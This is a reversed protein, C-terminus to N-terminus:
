QSNTQDTWRTGDWWRNLGPISPDPYWGPPPPGTMVPAGAMAMAPTWRARRRRVIGVILLVVGLVGVLFGIGMLVFWIAANKAVDGLSKSLLVREGPPGGVHVDYSGSTKITFEVQGLYSNNGTSLTETVNAPTPRVPIQQGTSSTVTVDAPSLTALGSDEDVYVEWTGSSLHATIDAPTIEHRGVIDHVIKVIGEALGGIGMVTGIVIVIIAVM